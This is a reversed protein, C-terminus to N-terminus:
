GKEQRVVCPRRCAKPRASHACHPGYNGDRDPLSGSQIGAGLQPSRARAQGFNGSRYRPIRAGDRGREARREPAGPRFVISGINWLTDKGGLAPFERAVQAALRLLAAGADRRNAMPTTGAHDAQGRTRIRFRRIGVIGTVIGIRRGAQELRPGQEIHAELYCVHRAADIRLPNKAPPVASLVSRLSVGASRAADIEAPALENCFMRSGLFALYTGEEDQFSVVDIGILSPEGSERAARAIEIGYMVGLAGDLWGGRPVTDTHSGILLARKAGPHVGYVNAVDDMHPELGIEQMRQMLWRRAELDTPSLAVRDVGTKFRGFSALQRLDSLLRDGNVRM